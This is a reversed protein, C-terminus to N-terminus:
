RMNEHIAYISDIAGTSFQRVKLMWNMSQNKGGGSWTPNSRWDFFRSDLWIHSKFDLRISPLKVMLMNVMDATINSIPENLECMNSWKIFQARFICNNACCYLIERWEISMDFVVRSQERGNQAFLFHICGHLCASPQQTDLIIIFM